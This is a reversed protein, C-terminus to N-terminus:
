DKKTKEDCPPNVLIRCMLATWLSLVAIITLLFRLGRFWDPYGSEILDLYCTVALGGMLTVYGAPPPMFLAAWGILPPTISWGYQLWTQPITDGEVVMGWRVGGLFSLITTGYGIHYSALTPCYVGLQLMYAPAACFPILGALGLCLAPAPSRRLSRLDKMINIPRSPRDVPPFVKRNNPTCMMRSAVTLSQLSIGKRCIMRSLIM